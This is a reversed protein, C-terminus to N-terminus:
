VGFITLIHLAIKRSYMHTYFKASFTGNTISMKAFFCLPDNKSVGQVTHGFLLGSDFIMMLDYQFGGTLSCKEDTLINYTQILIRDTVKNTVNDTASNSAAVHTFDVYIVFDHNFVLFFLFYPFWLYKKCINGVLLHNLLPPSVPLPASPANAGESKPTPPLLKFGGVKRVQSM